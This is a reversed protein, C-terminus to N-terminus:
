NFASEIEKLIEDSLIDKTAEKLLATIDKSM